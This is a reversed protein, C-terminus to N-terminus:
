GPMDEPYLETPLDVGSCITKWSGWHNDGTIGAGHLLRSQAWWGYRIGCYVSQFTIQGVKQLQTRRDVRKDAHTLPNRIAIYFENKYKVFEKTTQGFRELTNEWDQVFDGQTNIGENELTVHAFMAEMAAQFLIASASLTSFLMKGAAYRQSLNVGGNHFADQGSENRCIEDYKEWEQKYEYAKGLARFSNWGHTHAVDFSNITDMLESDAVSM